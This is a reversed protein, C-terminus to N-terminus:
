SRQRNAQNALAQCQRFTQHWLMGDFLNVVLGDRFRKPSIGAPTETKVSINPTTYFLTLRSGAGSEPLLRKQKKNEFFFNNRM